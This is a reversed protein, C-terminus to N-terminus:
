GLQRTWDHGTARFFAVTAAFAAPDQKGHAMQRFAGAVRARLSRPQTATRRAATHPRRAQRRTAREARGQITMTTEM